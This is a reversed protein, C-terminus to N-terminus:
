NNKVEDWDVYSGNKLNLEEKKYSFPSYSHIVYADLEYTSKEPDKLIRIKLPYSTPHERIIKNFTIVIEEELEEYNYEILLRSNQKTLLVKNNEFGKFLYDSIPYTYKSNLFQKSYNKDKKKYNVKNEIIENLNNNYVEGKDVEYPFHYYDSFDLEFLGLHTIKGTLYPNKETSENIKFFSVFTNARNLMFKEFKEGEELTDFIKTYSCLNDLETKVGLKDRTFSKYYKLNKKIEEPIELIIPTKTVYSPVTLEKAKYYAGTYLAIAEGDPYCEFYVSPNNFAVQRFIMTKSNDDLNYDLAGALPTESYYSKGNFIKIDFKEGLSYFEKKYEKKHKHRSVKNTAREFKKYIHNLSPINYIFEKTSNFGIFNEENMNEVYFPIISQNFLTSDNLEFYEKQISKSDKLEIPQNKILPISQSFNLIAKEDEINLTEAKIQQQLLITVIISIIIKM